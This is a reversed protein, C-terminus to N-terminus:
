RWGSRRCIRRSDRTRTRRSTPRTRVARRIARTTPSRRSGTGAPPSRCARKSCATSCRRSTNPIALERRERTGGCMAGALVYTGAEIRDPIVSHTAGGLESVGEIEIRPSGLGSINAGMKLLCMGLDVVEPECAAGHIVTRGKALTAAMMVNATRARDLGVFRRPVDGGGALRRAAGEAIVYGHEVKVRAGLAVM